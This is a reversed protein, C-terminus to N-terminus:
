LEFFPKFLTILNPFSSLYQVVVDLNFKKECGFIAEDFLGGKEPKLTKYNITESRTVEGHSWETIREPSALGVKIASLKKVDFM